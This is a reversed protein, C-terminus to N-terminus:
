TPRLSKRVIRNGVAVMLLALISSAIYVIPDRMSFLQAVAIPLVFVLAFPLITVPFIIVVGIIKWLLFAMRGHPKLHEVKENWSATHAKAYAYWGGVGFGAVVSVAIVVLYALM